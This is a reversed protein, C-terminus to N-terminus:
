GGPRCEELASQQAELVDRLIQRMTDLVAILRPESLSYSISAGDRRARVLGRQRLLALHRSITPQPTALLEALAGVNMEGDALAYLIQIRKPEGVAQCMVTHLLDLEELPVIPMNASENM